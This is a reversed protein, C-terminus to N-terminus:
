IAVARRRNASNNPVNRSTSTAAPAATTPAFVPTGILREAATAAGPKITIAIMRKM